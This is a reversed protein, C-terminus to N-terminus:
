EDHGMMMMMRAYDAGSMLAGSAIAREMGRVSGESKLASPQSSDVEARSAAPRAEPAVVHERTLSAAPERPVPRTRSLAQQLLAALERSRQAEAERLAREYRIEVQLAALELEVATAGEEKAVAPQERPPSASTTLHDGIIWSGLGGASLSSVSSELPFEMPVTARQTRKKGHRRRPPQQPVREARSADLSQLDAVVQNWSGGLEVPLSFMGGEKQSPRLVEATADTEFADPGQPLSAVFESASLAPAEAAQPGVLLVRPGFKTLGGGVADDTLRTATAM